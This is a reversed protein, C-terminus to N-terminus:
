CFYLQYILVIFNEKMYEEIDIQYQDENRNNDKIVLEGIVFVCNMGFVDNNIGDLVGIMRM